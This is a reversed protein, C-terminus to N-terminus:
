PHPTELEWAGDPKSPGPTARDPRKTGGTGLFSGVIVLPFGIALGVSFREHLIVIGLVVAVVPNLYTIVTARAPGVETILAFYLLFALATCVVILILVSSLEEPSIRKPLHTLAIPSYGVATLIFSAGVVAISPVDTLHTSVVFPGLAYCVAVVAIEGVAVLDPGRVDVGVIVAVGAFGVGLGSLRPWGLRAERRTILSFAIAILPVTAVLLGALSSSVRQEARSLFLWPISVEVVTYVVVARWHRALAVLSDRRLLLPLFALGAPATRFFVLTPPSIDRVAIRILLYPIGWIVGMAAFLVWGRRSMKSVTAFKRRIHGPRALRTSRVLRRPQAIPPEGPQARGVPSCM